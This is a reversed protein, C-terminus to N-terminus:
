SSSPMRGGALFSYLREHFTQLGMTANMDDM